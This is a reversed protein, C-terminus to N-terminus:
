LGLKDLKKIARYKSFNFEEWSNIKNNKYVTRFYYNLESKINYDDTNNYLNILMPINDTTYTELYHLDLERGNYYRNINKNAILTDVNVFCVCVYVSIIIILFSKSINFNDNIIYMVTPIMLLVETILIVDVLIRSVTYGYAVEYMHMRLFSSIIIILTLFLMVVNMINMYKNNLKDAKYKKSILIIIMNIISVVMLEFFGSRAYSAYDIYCDCDLSGFTFLSKIQIFDFILYIINLVTILVKITYIDKFKSEKVIYKENGYDKILYMTSMGIIFSMLVFMFIKGLLKDIFELRFINVITDIIVKFLNRFLPDAKSLLLLVICVIPIIVLLTKLLRKGKDSVKIKKFTKRFYEKYFEGLYGFPKYIIKGFDFMIEKFKYTPKITLVYMLLLLILIVIYNLINFTNNNFLVYHLSLLVIPVSLLLGNWNKIKNNRSFARYLFLLLPIMFLVVSVGLSHGFFLIVHWLALFFVYVLLESM